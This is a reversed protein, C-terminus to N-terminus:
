SNLRIGSRLLLQRLPNDYNKPGPDTKFVAGITGGKVENGATRVSASGTNTVTSANDNAKKIVTVVVAEVFTATGTWGFPNGEEQIVTLDSLLMNNYVMLETTLTVRHRNGRISELSALMRAASGRQRGADSEALTLTVRAPQRRAGNIYDTADSSDPDSAVKLTLSHRVQTVGSFHLEAGTDANKLWVSSQAM